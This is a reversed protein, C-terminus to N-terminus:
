EVKRREALSCVPRNSLRNTERKEPSIHMSNSRDIARRSRRSRELTTAGVGREPARSVRTGRPGWQSPELGDGVLPDPMGSSESFGPSRM